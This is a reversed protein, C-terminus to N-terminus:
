SNVWHAIRTLYSQVGEPTSEIENYRDLQPLLTWVLLAVIALLLPFHM